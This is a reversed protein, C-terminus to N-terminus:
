IALADFDAVLSDTEWPTPNNFASGKLRAVELAAELAAIVREPLDVSGPRWRIYKKGRLIRREYILRGNTNYVAVRV